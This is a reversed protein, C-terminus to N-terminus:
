STGIKIIVCIFKPCVNVASQLITQAIASILSLLEVIDHKPYNNTFNHKFVIKSVRVCYSQVKQNLFTKLESFRVHM